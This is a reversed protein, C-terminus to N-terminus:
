KLIAYLILSTKTLLLNNRIKDVIAILGSALVVGIILLRM